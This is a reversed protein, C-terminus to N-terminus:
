TASRRIRRIIGNQIAHIEDVGLLRLAVLYIGMGFAVPVAVSMIEGPLASAFSTLQLGRAVGYVVLAMVGGALMSRLFTRKVTSDGVQGLSRHLLFWMALAHFTFQASNALVLGTMGLPRVLSLAFIFYVGVALVGVIVPTRTNQRSYYTFILVQDFAAFFTGPLYALLAVFIAHAGDFSTAGHYFLLRVTPWAIAALGLTAPIVMITVMKIGNSLTRQFAQSDGSTFHRSLTPLAAISTATAVLGLIMQNLTTAYRMAGLANEGVGWALNRDIVLAVTNSLLGISIPIYLALIRRIAPHSFNFNLRPMADRLGPAQILVLCFAGILIGVPLSRIGFATRGLTLAVAVIAANRVALSIAPRAFRHMSYLTSMLITSFALLLVAPLIIRVMENALAVTSAGRAEAGGGFITMVKVVYPAFIELVIIAGGVLILALVMLAGTIRRLEERHEPSSYASLVPVLAAEMMGSIVLNFLMTHINDAITFAAVADGTGFLWSTVQERGLGLIRSLLTGAMIIAAGQAIRARDSIEPTEVSEVDTTTTEM